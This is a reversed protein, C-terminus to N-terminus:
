RKGRDLGWTESGVGQSSSRGLRRSAASVVKGVQTVRVKMGEERKLNM